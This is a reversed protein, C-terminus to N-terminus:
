KFKNNLAKIYDSFNQQGGVERKTIAEFSLEPRLNQLSSIQDNLKKIDDKRNSIKAQELKESLHTMEKKLVEKVKDNNALDDNIRQSIKSLETPSMNKTSWIFDAGQLKFTLDQSRMNKRLAEAAAELLTDGAKSGDEFYNFYRLSKIKPMVLLSDTTENFHQFIFNQSEPHTGDLLGTAGREPIEYDVRTKMKSVPDIVYKEVKFINKGTNDSYKAISLDGVRYVEGVRTTQVDPLKDLIIHSAPNNLTWSSSRQPIAIESQYMPLPRARPTEASGYKEASRGFNLVTDIKMKKAQEESRTLLNELSDQAGIQTSGISIDPQQIKALTDIPERLERLQEDTLPGQNESELKTKQAKYEDARSIKEERFVIKADGSLDKRLGDQINKLIQQVKKPDKEDIILGFEDGGLRALTVKSEGHELVKDAVAKIYRDGAAEGGKFTKNVAGLSAVDIFAFHAQGSKEQAIKEFLERGAPYNANIGGSIDDFQIEQTARYTKGDTGKVAYSSYYNKNKELNVREYVQVNQPLKGLSTREVKDMQDVALPEVKRSGVQRKEAKQAVSETARRDISPEPLSQSLTPPKLQSAKSISFGLGLSSVLSLSASLLCSHNQNDAASLFINDTSCFLNENTSKNVSAQVKERCQDFTDKLSDSTNLVDVSINMAESVAQARRTWLLQAASKSLQGLGSVGFTAGLLGLNLYTDNMVKATSNRDLTADELCRHLVLHRMRENEEGNKTTIEQIEPTLALVSRVEDIDCNSKQHTCNGAMTFKDELNKLEQDYEKLYSMINKEFNSANIKTFNSHILWPNIEVLSKLTLSLNSKLKECKDDKECKKPLSSLHSKAEFYLQQQERANKLFSTKDLTSTCKKNLECNENAQKFLGEDPCPPPSKGSIQSIKLRQENARNIGMNLRKQYYFFKSIKIKDEIPSSTICGSITSTSFDSSPLSNKFSDLFGSVTMNEATSNKINKSLEFSQYCTNARSKIILAKNEKEDSIFQDINKSCIRKENKLCINKSQFQIFKELSQDIFIKEQAGTSLSSLLLIILTFIKKSM